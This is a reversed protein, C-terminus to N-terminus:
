DIYNKTKTIVERMWSYKDVAELKLILEAPFNNVGLLAGAIQGALSANSVGPKRFLIIRFDIYYYQEESRNM